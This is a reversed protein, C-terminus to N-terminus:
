LLVGAANDTFLEGDRIYRALMTDSAHGTQARIKWSAVGAQAASTAFGARLSHGSYGTPDIGAAEVRGKVVLSVAEGSLCHVEIKGHRDIPKFVPGESTGSRSLWQDLALVPCWRTRGHPVGVKRGISMQDTKSRRLHLIVGQRVPEIDAHDLGVLESRRFGGAFGILLLARDRVDKLRDGMANLVLFLDDRLLPKAEQQATGHTRKIGRLTAKVLEARTPDALGRSRHAKSLAALRRVLTATKHVEAHEALYAAVLDPSAPLTGGWREFQALDSLYARLTNAAMSDRVYAAIRDPLPPKCNIASALSAGANAMKPRSLHLNDRTLLDASM